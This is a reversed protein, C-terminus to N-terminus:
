GSGSVGTVCAFSGLPIKLNVNNLNNGSAGNIELFRGNKALRRNKPIPIFSKNSLYRGTISDNNNLIDEYSGQAVIKGGKMGAERGLDIIYDANRITETDHEVVIVTNGLDRLRKLADILKKNDKQHLGISPEDM